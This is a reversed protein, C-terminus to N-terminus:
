LHPDFYFDEQRPGTRRRAKAGTVAYTKVRVGSKWVEWVELSIAAMTMGGIWVSKAPSWHVQGEAASADRDAHIREVNM